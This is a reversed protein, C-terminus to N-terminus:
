SHSIISKSSAISRMDRVSSKKLRKGGKLNSSIQSSVFNQLLTTYSIHPTDCAVLTVIRMGISNTGNYDGM